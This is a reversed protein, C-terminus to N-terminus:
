IINKICVFFTKLHGETLVIVYVKCEWRIPGVVQEAFPNQWPNQSVSGVEKEVGM